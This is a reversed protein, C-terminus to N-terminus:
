KLTADYECDGDQLHKFTPTFYSPQAQREISKLINEFKQIVM